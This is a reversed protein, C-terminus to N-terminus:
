HRIRTIAAETARMISKLDLDPDFGSWTHLYKPRIRAPVLAVELGLGLESCLPTWCETYAAAPAILVVAANRPAFLLNSAAAGGDIAIVEADRMLNIQEAITLSAPDFIEFGAKSM